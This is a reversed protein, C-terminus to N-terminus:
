KRKTNKLYIYLEGFWLVCSSVAIAILWESWGLPVFEFIGAAFPLYFILVVLGISIIFDLNIYKNSFVGLKFISHNPSRMNWLNFLQSFMMSLFAVTRAKEIGQPLFHVFLLIDGISMVIALIAIFVIM